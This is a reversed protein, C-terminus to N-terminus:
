RHTRARPRTHHDYDIRRERDGRAAQDAWARPHASSGTGSHLGACGSRSGSPSRSSSTPPSTSPVRDDANAVYLQLRFANHFRKIQRPNRELYKLASFEAAIVEGSDRIRAARERKVAERVVEESPAAEEIETAADEVSGLTEDSAERIVSQTEKVAAEPTKDSPSPNGTIESLLDRIAASSPEPIAVSLQVLKALFEIGFRGGLPNDTARLHEVTESYAVDINAAVVDRDLGLVFVCRHEAANFIQNMAEVLEVLEVVHAPSCRDLDDVFVALAREVRRRAPADRDPLPALTRTLIGLDRNAEAHLRAPIPLQATARSARDRAQVPREAVGLLPHGGRVGGCGDVSRCAGHWQDLSRREAGCPDGRRGRAATRADDGRAAAAWTTAVGAGYPLAPARGSGDRGAAPRINSERASGLPARQARVEMGRFAGHALPPAGPPPSDLRDKLQRMVSTREDDLLTHLAEVLPTFGLVDQVAPVDAAARAIFDFAESAETTEDAETSAAHTDPEEIERKLADLFGGVYLQRLLGEDLHALGAIVLRGHLESELDPVLRDRVQALWRVAEFRAGLERELVVSSAGHNGYEPHEALLQGVLQAATVPGSLAGVARRVSPSINLAHWTQGGVARDATLGSRAQFAGM